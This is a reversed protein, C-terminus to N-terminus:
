DSMHGEQVHGAGVCIICGKLLSFHEATTLYVTISLCWSMDLLGPLHYQGIENRQSYSQFEMIEKGYMVSLLWVLLSLSVDKLSSPGVGALVKCECAIVVGM